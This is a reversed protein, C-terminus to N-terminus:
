HEIPKDNRGGLSAPLVHGSTYQLALCNLSFKTSLRSFAQLHPWKMFQDLSLDFLRVECIVMTAAWMNCNCKEKSRAFHFNTEYDKGGM